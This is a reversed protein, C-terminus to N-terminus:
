KLLERLVAVIKDPSTTLQLDDMEIERISNSTHIRKRLGRVKIAIDGGGQSTYDVLGQITSDNKEIQLSSAGDAQLQLNTQASNTDKALDKLTESLTNSINAMNPTIFEFGVWTIKSRYTEVLEWFYSEKFVRDPHFRLGLKSLPTRVANQFIKVVTDTSAFATPREQILIYQEDSRNLIFASIHPWNEVQEVRFDPTERTLARRPALSLLFAENGINEIRVSLEEGRHRYTKIFPITEAFLSNKQSIVEDVTRGDYLDDTHRDIPLLQYRYVKFPTLSAM